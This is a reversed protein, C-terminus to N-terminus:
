VGKGRDESRQRMREEEGKRWVHWENRMGGKAVLEDKKKREKEWAKKGNKVEEEVETKLTLKTMKLNTKKLKM